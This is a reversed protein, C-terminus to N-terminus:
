REETGRHGPDADWLCLRQAKAVSEEGMVQATGVQRMSAAGGGACPGRGGLTGSQTTLQSPSRRHPGGQAGLHTAPHQSCPRM